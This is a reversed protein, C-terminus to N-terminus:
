HEIMMMCMWLWYVILSPYLLKMMVIFFGIQIKNGLSAGEIAHRGVPGIIWM